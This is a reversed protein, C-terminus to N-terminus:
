NSVENMNIKPVERVLAMGLEDPKSIHVQDCNWKFKYDDILQQRKEKTDIENARCKAIGISTM